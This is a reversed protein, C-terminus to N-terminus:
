GVGFGVDSDLVLPPSDPSSVNTVEFVSEVVSGVTALAPGSKEVVVSPYFEAAEAGKAGTGLMGISGGLVVAALAHFARRSSSLSGGGSRGTRM